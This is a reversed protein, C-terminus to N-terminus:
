VEELIEQIGKLTDRYSEYREWSGELLLLKIIKVAKPLATRSKIIMEANAQKEHKRDRMVGAGIEAVHQATEYIGSYISIERGLHTNDSIRWPGKTAKADLEELEKLWKTLSM